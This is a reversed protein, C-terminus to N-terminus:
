RLGCTKRKERCLHSPPTTCHSISFTGAALILGGGTHSVYLIKSIFWILLNGDCISIHWWNLHPPLMVGEPTFVDTCLIGLSCKSKSHLTTPSTLSSFPTHNSRVCSSSQSEFFKDAFPLELHMNREKFREKKVCFKVIDRLNDNESSSLLSISHLPWYSHNKMSQTSTKNHKPALLLTIGKGVHNLCEQTMLLLFYSRPQWIRSDRGTGKLLLTSVLTVWCYRGVSRAQGLIKCTM